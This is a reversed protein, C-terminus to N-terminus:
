CFSIDVAKLIVKNVKKREYVQYINFLITLIELGWQLCAWM